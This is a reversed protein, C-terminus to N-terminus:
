SLARAIEVLQRQAISLAALPADPGFDAGLRALLPAARARCAARDVLRLPGGRVPERGILINAAVDLNDFVSLEQHVFAIGQAGAEAVTLHPHDRGHLRIRGADPRGVGGLVKMLTSKGAGNEGVLGLVEGAALHLSVGDLAVVGPYAKRIGELALLPAAPAQEVAGAEAAGCCSDCTPSSSASM